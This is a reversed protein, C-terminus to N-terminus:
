NYLSEDEKSLHKAIALKVVKLPLMACKIRNPGLKLGIMNEIDERELKMVEDITANLIKEILLDTSAMSIICGCGEFRADKIKNDEVKLYITVEDGCLPNKDSCVIADALKGKYSPREAREILHDYM